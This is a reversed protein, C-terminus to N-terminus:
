YQCHVQHYIRNHEAIVVRSNFLVTVPYQIRKCIALVGNMIAGPSICTRPLWERWLLALRIVM